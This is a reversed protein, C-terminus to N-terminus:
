LLWLVPNRLPLNRLVETTEPFHELPLWTQYFDEAAAKDTRRYHNWAFILTPHAVPWEDFYMVDPKLTWASKDKIFPYMFDIAKRINNGNPCTYAWLDDEPTSLLQCIGVMADLQFLSYGYPKTRELEMPFSGDPCMEDLFKYKFRNKCFELVETWGVYKAFEGTQMAWCVGHNNAARFEGVGFPDSWLWDIYQYFWSKTGDLLDQPMLGAKELRIMAEVVEILHITDIIGYQRGSYRGIVAQAYKMNPNMRTEPNVFWAYLHPLIADAYKREGTLIWASALNGVAICMDNLAKRHCPFNDPNSYGDRGKYPGGPNAPDPWSYDAQSFFDHLGGESLPAPFSTITVPTFDLDAEAREIITQQLPAAVKELIVTEESKCAALALVGLALAFIRKM